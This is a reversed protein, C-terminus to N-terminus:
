ILDFNSANIIYSIDRINETIFNALSTQEEKSLTEKNKFVNDLNYKDDLMKLTKIADDKSRIAYVPLIEDIYTLDEKINNILEFKVELNNLYLVYKDVDIYCRNKFFIMKNVFIIKDLISLYIIERTTKHKNYYTYVYVDCDDFLLKMNGSYVSLATDDLRKKVFGEYLKIKKM